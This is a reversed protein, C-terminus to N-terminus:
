RKATEGEEGMVVQSGYEALARKKLKAAMKNKNKNRSVNEENKYLYYAYKFCL